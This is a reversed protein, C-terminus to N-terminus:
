GPYWNDLSINQPKELDNWTFPVELLGRGSRGFGKWNM